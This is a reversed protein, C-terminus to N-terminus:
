IVGEDDSESEHPHQQRLCGVTDSSAAKPKSNSIGLDEPPRRAFATLDENAVTNARTSVVDPLALLWEQERSGPQGSKLARAQIAARARTLTTMSIGAANARAEVARVAVPGEALLETLFTQAKGIAGGAERRPEAVLQEATHTSTGLWAVRSTSGHGEIKFAMSPAEVQLNSKTSALIRRIGSPDSPDKGVLLGSRAAGVIGISGGGRYLAKAGAGKNLHRVITFAASTRSALDSLVALVQRIDQDRHSDTRGNLFAMLPDVVVLQADVRDIAEQLAEVDDLTPLRRVGKSVIAQLAVIRRVDAGAAEL